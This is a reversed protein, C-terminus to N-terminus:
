FWPTMKKKLNEKNNQKRKKFYFLILPSESKILVIKEGDFALSMLRTPVCTFFVLGCNHSQKDRNKQGM